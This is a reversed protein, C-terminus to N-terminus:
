GGAGGISVAHVVGTVVEVALAVREVPQERQEPGLEVLEPRQELLPRPAPATVGDPDALPRPLAQVREEVLEPQDGALIPVLEVETDGLELVADAQELLCFVLLPLDAAAAAAVTLPM